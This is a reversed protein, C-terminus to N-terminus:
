SNFKFLFSEFICKRKDISFREQTNPIWQEVLKYGNQWLIGDQGILREKDFIRIPYSAEYIPEHVQEISIWEASSMPTRDIIIYKCKHAVAELLIEDYNKIYQLSSAFIICNCAVVDCIKYEFNLIEDSLEKKGFEVFHEQEVITWKLKNELYKFVDKHQFYMSGLSGGFDLVRLEGLEMYISLLIALIPFNTQKEYFLCSDREFYADGNRVAIAASKVKEFITNTDYGKCAKQADEWSSYEGYFDLVKKNGRLMYLTNKIISIIRDKKTFVYRDTM